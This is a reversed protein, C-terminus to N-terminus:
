TPEYRQNASTLRTPVNLRARGMRRALEIASALRRVVRSVGLRDRDQQDIVDWDAIEATETVNEYSIAYDLRDWGMSVGAIRGYVLEGEIETYALKTGALRELDKGLLGGAGESRWGGRIAQGECPM